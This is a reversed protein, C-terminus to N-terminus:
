ILIPYLVSDLTYRVLGEIYNGFVNNDISIEPINPETIVERCHEYIVRLDDEDLGNGMITLHAPNITCAVTVVMQAVFRRFSARNQLIKRQEEYNLGFARAVQFLEGALVSAGKLLHGDAVLGAGVFGDREKPFYIAAFNSRREPYEHFLRYTIFNMDNEVIVEVDHKERLRGAFDVGVLSPIDCSEIYGGQAHGPIGLGVARILPDQIICSTVLAELLGYDMSEIPMSERTIIKGCADAIAYELISEGDRMATCLGLIHMYDSNYAFLDAPRGINFGTQDVKIIEGSELMENLTTSCTAMSLATERAIDAKTCREHRQIANRIREKNLRRIEIATSVVM